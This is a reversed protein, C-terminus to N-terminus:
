TNHFFVNGKLVYKDETTSSGHKYPFTWDCPFIVLQGEIAPIQIRDIFTDCAQDVTNLYIVFSFYNFTNSIIPPEYGLSSNAAIKQISYYDTLIDKNGVDKSFGYFCQLIYQDIGNRIAKVM